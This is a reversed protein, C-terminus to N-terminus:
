LSNTLRLIRSEGDYEMGHGVRLSHEHYLRNFLVHETRSLALNTSNHAHDFVEVVGHKFLHQVMEDIARTSRGTRRGEMNNEM